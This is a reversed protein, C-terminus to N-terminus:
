EDDVEVIDKVTIRRAYVWLRLYEVGEGRHGDRYDFLPESEDQTVKDLHNQLHRVADAPSNATVRASLGLPGRPLQPAQTGRKPCFDFLYSRM